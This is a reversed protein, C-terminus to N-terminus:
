TLEHCLRSGLDWARVKVDFVDQDEKVYKPFRDQLYGRVIPVTLRYRDIEVRTMKASM